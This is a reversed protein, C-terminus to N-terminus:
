TVMRHIVALTLVLILILHPNLVLILALYALPSLSLMPVLKQLCQLVLNPQVSPDFSLSSCLPLRAVVSRFPAKAAPRLSFPVKRKNNM